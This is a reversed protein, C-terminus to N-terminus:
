YVDSCGRLEANKVRGIVEFYKGKRGCKCDDIGKIIGIDETIINHGPYSLPLLSFTQIIGSEDKKLTNFSSDRILVESFVSTHFNLYECDMFISGTQEVMGYYNHVKKIGIKETLIKNFKLKSIEQDKLKKWGGGHILTIKNEGFKIKKKLLIKIFKEWVFSTFGFLIIEKNKNKQIFNKLLNIKLNNKSDLLFKKNKFFQAFGRIAAKRASIVKNNKYTEISDIFFIDEANKPLFDFIIKKLVRSQLMSTEFDVNIKSNNKGTTGSSKMVLFKQNTTSKLNHDKFLNSHLFPLNELKEIKNINGFINNTIKKYEECRDFHIQSLKKQLNFFIKDKEKQMLSFPNINDIKSFNIM